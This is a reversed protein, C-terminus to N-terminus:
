AKLTRACHFHFILSASLVLHTIFFATTTLYFIKYPVLLQFIKISQFGCCGSPIKKFKKRLIGIKTTKTPVMLGHFESCLSQYIKCSDKITAFRLFLFDVFTKNEALGIFNIGIFILTVM